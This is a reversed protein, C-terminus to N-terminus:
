FAGKTILHVTYVGVIVTQILEIGILEKKKDKQSIRNGLIEAMNCIYILVFIVNFIKIM